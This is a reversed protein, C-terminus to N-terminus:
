PTAGQTAGLGPFYRAGSWQRLVLHEIVWVILMFVSLLPLFIGLLIPM